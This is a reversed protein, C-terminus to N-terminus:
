DPNSKQGFVVCLVLVTCQHFYKNREVNYFLDISGHMELPQMNCQFDSCIRFAFYFMFLMFIQPSFFFAYFFLCFFVEVDDRRQMQGNCKTWM